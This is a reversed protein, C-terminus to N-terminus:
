LARLGVLSGRIGPVQYTSKEIGLIDISEKEELNKM